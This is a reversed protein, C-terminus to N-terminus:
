DWWLWFYKNQRYDSIMDPMSGYGQDIVDPCFAYVEETFAAMDAPLHDMYAHIRVIDIVEFTFGLKEHWAKLQNLVDANSLNYNVGETGILSIVKFPDPENIIVVDYYSRYSDDFDMNTLFLYNGGKIVAQHYTRFLQQATHEDVFKFIVGTDLVYHEEKGGNYKWVDRQLPEISKGSAEKIQLLLGSDISLGNKDSDAIAAETSAHTTNGNQSQCSICSLVFLLILLTNKM